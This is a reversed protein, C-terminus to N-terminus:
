AASGARDDAPPSPDCDGGGARGSPPPGNVGPGNAEGRRCPVIGAVDSRCAPCPCEDDVLPAEAEAFSRAYDRVALAGTIAQAAWEAQDEPLVSYSGSMVLLVERTAPRYIATAMMDPQTSLDLGTAIGRSM